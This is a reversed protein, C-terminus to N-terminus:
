TEYLELRQGRVEVHFLLCINVHIHLGLETPPAACQINFLLVDVHFTSNDPSILLNKFNLFFFQIKLGESAKHM